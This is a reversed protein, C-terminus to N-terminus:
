WDLGPFFADPYHELTLQDQEYGVITLIDFRFDGNYDISDMYATAASVPLRQKRPTVAIAPDGYKSTKRSKVEIFILLQQYSAIIDIEAKKSVWNVANIEYGLSIFFKLAIDETIRGKATNSTKNM